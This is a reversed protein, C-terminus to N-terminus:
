PPCRAIHPFRSHQIGQALDSSLEYGAVELSEGANLLEKLDKVTEKSGRDSVMSAALRLRLFQTLWLDGSIVPHWLILRNITYQHRQLCEPVLLAGGRLALINLESSNGSYGPGMSASLDSIWSDWSADAFDGQSDGTGYLDPLIVEYGEQCALKAMKALMRRSKNMEEALPPIILLLPPNEDLDPTFRTVLIKGSKSDIFSPNINM